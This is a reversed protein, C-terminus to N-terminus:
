TTSVLQTIIRRSCFNFTSIFSLLFGCKKLMVLILFFQVWINLLCGFYRILLMSFDNM